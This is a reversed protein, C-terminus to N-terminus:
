FDEDINRDVLNRMGKIAETLPFELLAASLLPINYNLKYKQNIEEILKSLQTFWFKEAYDSNQALGNSTYGMELMVEMLVPIIIAQLLIKEEKTIGKSKELEEYLTNEDNNKHERNNELGIYIINQQELDVKWMKQYNENLKSSLKTFEFISALGSKMKLEAGTALISGRKIPPYDSIHPEILQVYEDDLENKIMNFLYKFKIDQKTVIYPRISSDILQKKHNEDIYIFEISDKDGDKTFILEDLIMKRSKARICFEAQDESIIKNLGSNNAISFIIKFGDEVISTDLKLRKAVFSPEKYTDLWSCMVPHPFRPRTKM